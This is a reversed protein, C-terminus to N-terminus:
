KMVDKEIETDKNPIFSGDLISIKSKHAEENKTPSSQSNRDLNSKSLILDKLSKKANAVNLDVETAGTHTYGLKKQTKPSM